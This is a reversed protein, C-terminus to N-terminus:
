KVPYVWTYGKGNERVIRNLAVQAERRNEFGEYTVLYYRNRYPIIQSPYGENLLKSHLRDANSKIEFCGAILFYSLEKVVPKPEEKKVVEVPAPTEVVAAPKPAEIASDKKNKCSSLSFLLSIAVLFVTSRM